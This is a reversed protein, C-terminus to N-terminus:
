FTTLVLSIPWNCRTQLNQPTIKKFQCTVICSHQFCNRKALRRFRPHKAPQGQFDAALHQEQLDELSQWPSFFLSHLSKRWEQVYTSNFFVINSHLKKKRSMALAAQRSRIYSDKPVSSLGQAHLSDFFALSLTGISTQFSGNCFSYPPLGVWM